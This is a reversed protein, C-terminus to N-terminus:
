RIKNSIWFELGDTREPPLFKIVDQQEGYRLVLGMFGQTVAAKDDTDSAEGFPQEVLGADKAKKKTDDDKPEIISYDFKGGGSNKYEQLLDRLDRVFADLKPLGKTVYADIILEQKMSRLLNGSGKSLTFKESPLPFRSREIFCCSAM